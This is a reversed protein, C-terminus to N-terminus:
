ESVLLLAYFHTHAFAKSILCVSALLLFSEFTLDCGDTQYDSSDLNKDSEEGIGAPGLCLWLVYLDLM